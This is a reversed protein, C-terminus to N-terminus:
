NLQLIVRPHSRYTLPHLPVPIYYDIKGCLLFSPAIQSEKHPYEFLTTPISKINQGYM